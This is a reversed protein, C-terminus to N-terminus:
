SVEGTRKQTSNKQSSNVQSPKFSHDEQDRGGSYSPNCVHVVTAWSLPFDFSQSLVKLPHSEM